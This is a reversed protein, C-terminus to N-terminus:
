PLHRYRQFCRRTTSPPPGSAHNRGLQVKWLSARSGSGGRHGLMGRTQRPPSDGVEPDKEAEPLVSCPCALAEGRDRAKGPRNAFVLCCKGCGRQGILWWLSMEMATTCAARSVMLLFSWMIATIFWQNLNIIAIIGEFNMTVATLSWNILANVMRPLPSLRKIRTVVM